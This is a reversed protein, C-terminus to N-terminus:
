KGSSWPTGFEPYLTFGGDVYLTQGTVYSADDSVLFAVCSAVEEPKGIYHLPIHNEVIHRKQADDILVHNMPTLIAGPAVSNVRIHKTAYELALTRTLNGMGGKSASYGIYQPKPIKEHVSSINIICGPIKKDLFHTIALKSCIFPARLNVDIVSDFDEISMKHSDCCIQFGANNVLVDLDEFEEIVKDFMASIEDKKSMDAVVVIIKGNYDKPWENRLIEKLERGEKAANKEDICNIAVSMGEQALRIAISKGIGCSAGTILATKGRLNKM